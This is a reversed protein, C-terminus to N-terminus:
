SNDIFIREALVYKKSTTHDVRSFLKSAGHGILNAMYEATISLFRCDSINLTMVTDCMNSLCM